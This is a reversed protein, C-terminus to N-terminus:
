SFMNFFVPSHDYIRTHYVSRHKLPEILAKFTRITYPAHLTKRLYFQEKLAGTVSHEEFEGMLSREGAPKLLLSM